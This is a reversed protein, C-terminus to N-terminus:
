GSCLFRARWRLCRCHRRWYLLQFLSRKLGVVGRLMPLIRIKKAERKEEFQTNPMLELAIGTFRRSVEDMRIKQMGSAPNMITIGGHSVSQLVM